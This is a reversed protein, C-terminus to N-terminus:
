ANGHIGSASSIQLIVRPEKDKVRFYPAAARILRFPATNHVALMTEFQKDTM